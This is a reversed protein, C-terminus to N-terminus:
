VTYMEDFTNSIFKPAQVTWIFLLSPQVQELTLFHTCQFYGTLMDTDKLPPCLTWHCHWWGPCASWGRGPCLPATCQGWTDSGHWHHTCSWWSSRLSGVPPSEAPLTPNLSTIIIIFSIFSKTQIHSFGATFHSDAPLPHQATDNSQYRGAPPWQQRIGGRQRGNSGCTKDEQM